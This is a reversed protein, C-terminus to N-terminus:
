TVRHAIVNLILSDTKSSRAPGIFVLAGFRRSITMDMPEVMYPAVDNRWPRYIGDVEVRRFTEAAQSVSVRAPPALVPLAEDLVDAATAFEPLRGHGPVGGANVDFLM